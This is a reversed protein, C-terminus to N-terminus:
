ETETIKIGIQRLDDFFTPYSKNIAEIHDIEVENKLITAIVTLSMIIRHDNHSDFIIKKNNIEKKGKIIIENEFVEIESNIKKLEEQMALSRNSEKYILRHTNILKTTHNRVASIAMLIPGLDPTDKIDLIIEDDINKDSKTILIDDEFTIKGGLKEIFDIIKKDGQLSNQNLNKILTPQNILGLGIFFAAQSYDTEVTLNTSKLLQNKEKEYIISTKTEKTKIILGFKKLENITLLIYPLSEIEKEVEITVHDDILTSAMLLGSIYQSTINGKLNFYNTKLPGKVVLESPTQYYLQCNNEKFIRMYEDLPRSNLKGELHFICKENFLAIIPLMFRLTSGSEKPFFENNIIKLENSSDVIITHNQYTIKVNLNELCKITSLVDDNLTVNKIISKGNSLAALILDRHLISKSAPINLPIPINKSPTIIAKM